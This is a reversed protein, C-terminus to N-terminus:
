FRRRLRVVVNAPEDADSCQRPSTSGWSISRPAPASSSGSGPTAGSRACRPSPPARTSCRGRGTAWGGGADPTSSCWGSARSAGSSVPATRGQPRGPRGALWGFPDIDLGLDGRYEVQALAVRDCEAPAGPPRLAPAPSCQQVDERGTARRFDFGPVTGPRGGLLPTPAPARRRPALRRAGRARQAAGGPRAPKYRRVDLLGRGYRTEGDRAGAPADSTPAAREIRGAGREYDARVYWGAWPDDVRNRTDLRASATALHFRGEDALPNPRWAQPNRLVSFPDRERASTWRQDGYAFTLDADPGAFLTLRADAGHRNFYDRYDRHLLFTAIGVEDDPLQWSEVADVVDFSSGGLAVGRGGGYRVDATVLHGAGDSTLSPGHATRLVGFARVTTLARGARQRITPGVMATLGEVRNYTRGTTITIESGSRRHRDRWRRLWRWDEAASGRVVDVLGRLGGAYVRVSGGVTATAQGTVTGRVALVDGGVSSGPEFVVSADVAVIRGAVTGRVTLTGDRALVDGNVTRDAEVVFDGRVRLTTVAEAVDRVDRAVDRPIGTYDIATDAAATTDPEQAAAAAPAAALLAGVLALLRVAPCPIPLRV